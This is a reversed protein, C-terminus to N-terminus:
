HALQAPPLHPEAGPHAVTAAGVAVAFGVADELAQGVALRAALAGVFADGAGTTDLVTTAPAPVHFAGSGPRCGVAGLRGLTIVAAGPGRGVLASAAAMADPLDGISAGLLDGAELENVVLVDVEALLESGLPRSPAANLIVTTGKGALRVARQVTELPIELQAVLVRAAGLASRARELEAEGLEGNAGPAVVIANEGEGTVTIVAVGTLATNSTAIFATQVGAAALEAIRREGESDSGVRGVLTTRAGSRAAALAQNAGKGGPHRELRADGVTEGPAPRREVSLVLDLNISGVVVVEHEHETVHDDM